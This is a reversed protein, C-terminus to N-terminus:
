RMPRVQSGRGGPSVSTAPSTTAPPTTDPAATTAPIPWEPAIAPAAEPLRPELIGCGAVVAALAIALAPRGANRM